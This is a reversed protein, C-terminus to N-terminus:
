SGELHARRITAGLSEMGGGRRGEELPEAERHIAAAQEAYWSPVDVKLVQAFYACPDHAQHALTSELAALFPQFPLRKRSQM